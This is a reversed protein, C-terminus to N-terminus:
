MMLLEAMTPLRVTPKRDTLWPNVFHLIAAKAYDSGTITVKGSPYYVNVAGGGPARITVGGLEKGRGPIPISQGDSQMLGVLIAQKLVQHPM